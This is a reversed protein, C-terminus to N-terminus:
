IIMLIRLKYFQFSMLLKLYASSNGLLQVLKKCFDSLKGQQPSFDSLKGQQPSAIGCKEM